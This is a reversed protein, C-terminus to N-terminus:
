TCLSKVAYYFGLVSFAACVFLRQGRYQFHGLKVLRNLVPIVGSKRSVAQAGGSARAELSGSLVGVSGRSEGAATPDMWGARWALERVDPGPLPVLTRRQTSLPSCGAAARGGAVAEEGEAEHRRPSRPSHFSRRCAAELPSSAADRRPSM